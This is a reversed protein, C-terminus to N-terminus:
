APALPDFDLGLRKAGREEATKPDLDEWREEEGERPQLLGASGAAAEAADVELLAEEVLEQIWFKPARAREPQQEPLPPPPAAAVTREKCFAALDRGRGRGQAFLILRTASPNGGTAALHLAWLVEGRWEASHWGLGLGFSLGPTFRFSQSSGQGLLNVAMYELIQIRLEPSEVELFSCTELSLGPVEKLADAPFPRWSVCNELNEQLESERNGSHRECRLAPLGRRRAIIAAAAGVGAVLEM